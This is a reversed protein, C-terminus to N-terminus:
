ANHMWKKLPKIMAALAFSAVLPAVVLWAFFEVNSIKGFLSSYLGAVKNAAANSLFWVGMLMSVFKVPALKTVMSLGVPSLCLEGLTHFLYTLALFYMGVKVGPGLLIAGTLIIAYGAALLWLGLMFKTPTSPEKSRKALQIWLKSFLPALLIIYLPTLSQFWTTPVEWTHGFIHIIRDTYKDAFLNLSAGAQEYASWFFISFFALIFIVAIRQREQKTLPVKNAAREEKTQKKPKKGRGDLYKNKGWIFVALGLIMGIGASWFGWRWGVKEGLTGAVLNCLFAGLNIGMYFITFGGDRRPDNHTYLDGVISSINPKFLGTGIILLGMAVYLFTIGGLGMVFQGLAIFIGGVIIARRQGWYRDAIFGGLIPALYILSTFSGYLNSAKGETFGLAKVLYLVFLGRMAYYSFREWMETAFLLYLGSPHKEKIRVTDTM